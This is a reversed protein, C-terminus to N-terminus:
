SDLDDRWEDPVWAEDGQGVAKDGSGTRDDVIAIPAPEGDFTWADKAVAVVQGGSASMTVRVVHDLLELAKVRDNCAVACGLEARQWTDLSGVENVIVGVRERVRDKIRRIVMRKEKLSHANAIVLSLKAM